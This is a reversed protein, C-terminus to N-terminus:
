ITNNATISNWLFSSQELEKLVSEKSQQWWTDGFLGRAIKEYQVPLREHLDSDKEILIQNWEEKCDCPYQELKDLIAFDPRTSFTQLGSIIEKTCKPCNYATEKIEVGSYLGSLTCRRRYEPKISQLVKLGSWAYPVRYDGRQSLWHTLTHPKINTMCFIVGDAGQDFAWNITNISDQIAEHETLFIPKLLVHVFVSIKNQKLIQIANRADAEILGKNICNLQIYPNSTEVGLGVQLELRSDFADRFKRMKEETITEPRSETGFVRCSGQAVRTFLEERIDPPVEADDFMSGLPTIYIMPLDGINKLIQDIQWILSDKDVKEGSGFNCMTCSGARDMSCGETVFWSLPLEYPRGRYRTKEVYWGFEQIQAPPRQLRIHRMAACLFKNWKHLTNINPTKKMSVGLESLGFGFLSLRVLHPEGSAFSVPYARPADRRRSERTCITASKHPLISLGSAFFVPTASHVFQKGFPVGIVQISNQTAIVANHDGATQLWETVGLAHRM